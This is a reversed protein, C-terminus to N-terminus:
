QKEAKKINYMGYVNISIIVFSLVLHSLNDIFFDAEPLPDFTNLSIGWYRIKGQQQLQKM